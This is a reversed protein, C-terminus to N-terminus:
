TYRKVAREIRDLAVDVQKPATAYSLRIYGEGGRGFETGPVVAVKAKKLLLESFKLSKMGLEKINVFVYFTGNPELCSLGSIEQVRKVM